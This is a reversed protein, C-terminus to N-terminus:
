RFFFVCEDKRETTTWTTVRGERGERCSPAKLWIQLWPNSKLPRGNLTAVVIQLWFNCGSFGPFRSVDKKTVWWKFPQFSHHWLGSGCPLWQSRLRSFSNSDLVASVALTWSQNDHAGGGLRRAKSFTPCTESESDVVLLFAVFCLFDGGLFFVCWCCFNRPKNIGVLFGPKDHGPNKTQFWPFVEFFGPDWFPSKKAKTFIRSFDQLNIEWGGDTGMGVECARRMPHILSAQAEGQRLPSNHIVM